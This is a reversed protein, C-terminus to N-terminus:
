GGPAASAGIRALESKALEVERDNHLRQLAANLYTAAKDPRNLYRSYLLGLMLQVHELRDAKPYTRLFAEYADAAAAHHQQEFLHNAMDLQNQRSLVQAPDIARLEMFRKTAETLDGHSMAEAISARLDQIRDSLPNPATKAPAIYGFPNYGSAVLDRYQRRRNWRDLLAIVDWQDRPLLRVALMLMCVGMGYMAGGLHAVNAVNSPTGLLHSFQALLNLALYILVFWMSAIEAVGILVMFYIVTVHARPFLIMFAGTVAFVAGSAGIVPTQEALVHAVGAIVGGGLYFGLYGLHGMRDNVNNGFIYLFLMNSALHGIGGHLFAYTIYCILRPAGPDLEFLSQMQPFRLRALHAVVTALIIAWNMWPTRRFPVDTRLPLFM